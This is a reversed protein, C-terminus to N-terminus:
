KTEKFGAPIAVDAAGVTTAIRTRRDFSKVGVPEVPPDRDRRNM